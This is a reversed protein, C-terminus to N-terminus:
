CSRLQMETKMILGAMGAPRMVLIVMVYFVRFGGRPRAPTGAFGPFISYRRPM